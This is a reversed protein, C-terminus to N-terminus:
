RQRDGSMTGYDLGIEPLQFVCTKTKSMSAIYIAAQQAQFYGTLWACTDICAPESPRLNFFTHRHTHGTFTNLQLLSKLLLKAVSHPLCPPTQQSETTWSCTQWFFLWCWTGASTNSLRTVICYMFHALTLLILKDTLQWDHKTPPARQAYICKNTFRKSSSEM